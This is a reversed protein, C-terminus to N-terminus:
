YLHIAGEGSIQIEIHLKASVVASITSTSVLGKIDANLYCHVLTGVTNSVLPFLLSVLHSSPEM